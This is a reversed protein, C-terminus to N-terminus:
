HISHSGEHPIIVVELASCFGLFFLQFPCPLFVSEHFHLPEGLLDFAKKSRFCLRGKKIRALKATTAIEKETKLSPESAIEIIQNHFSDTRPAPDPGTFTGDKAKGYRRDDNDPERTLITLNRAKTYSITGNHVKELLEQPLDLLNIKDRVTDKSVEFDSATEDISKKILKMYQKYLNGEEVPSLNKRQINESGHILLASEDNLKKM